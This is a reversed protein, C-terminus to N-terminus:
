WQIMGPLEKFPNTDPTKFRCQLYAPSLYLVLYTLDTFMICCTSTIKRQDKQAAHQRAQMSTISSLEIKIQQRTNPPKHISM